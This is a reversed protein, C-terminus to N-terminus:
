ASAAAHDAVIEAIALSSTLGPSEIGYLNIWHPTGTEDAGQILFDTDGGGNPALKARIGAYGPNLGSQRVDPWYAAIADVFRDHEQPNVAFSPNASENDIWEVNPGFRVGGALDITVHVGLGGPEPVPYILRSFHPNRGAPVFYNGRAYFIERKAQDALGDIASAVRGAGLGASNVVLQCHLVMEEGGSDVVLEIGDSVCEGRRAESHCVLMAGHSEADALYSVMLAHSDIIGTSPSSLAELGYIEPENLRIQEQGMPSLDTVGNDAAKDRIGSLTDLQSGSTAVIIKGCRRHPVQRDRCYDYLLHKGRVCLLAKMSDKPYYIGAHIVESNRSSNEEGIHGHRELVIVDRGQLALQRAVALGVVGAGIVVCDVMEKQM